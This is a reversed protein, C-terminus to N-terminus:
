HDAHELARYTAVVNLRHMQHNLLGLAEGAPPPLDPKAFREPLATTEVTPELQQGARLAARVSEQLGHLYAIMTDIADRGEGMPGHGCVVTAVDITDRMKGLSEIYPGPGGELLMPGVGARPLFNGTWATKTVPEYVIVDGVGNGPGFHYLEVVRDGLDVVCLDNFAVDPRRWQTVDAIAADNGYLNKSRFGKERDLDAMSARNLTSSIIVVDDGFAYNGFTHDGHYTTNVLYRLPKETLEGVIQQIQFSVAGNIGADIVLAAKTGIIVGNNDKPPINAMLAYVGTGLEQPHLVLGEPDLNPGRYGAPREDIEGPLALVKKM